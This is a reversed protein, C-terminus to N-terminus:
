PLANAGPAPDVPELMGSAVIFEDHPTGLRTLIPELEPYHFVKAADRRWSALTLKGNVEKVPAAFALATKSSFFIVSALDHDMKDDGLGITLKDMTVYAVVQYDFGTLSETPESADPDVRFWRQEIPAVENPKPAKAAMVWRRGGDELIDKAMRLVKDGFTEEEYIAAVVHPPLADVSGGPIQLSAFVSHNLRLHKVWADVVTQWDDHDLAEGYQEEHSSRTGQALGVLADLPLTGELVLCDWALRTALPAARLEFRSEAHGKELVGLAHALDMIRQVQTSGRVGFDRILDRLWQNSVLRDEDLADQNEALARALEELQIVAKYAANKTAYVRNYDISELDPAQVPPVMREEPPTRTNAFEIALSNLTSPSRLEMDGHALHIRGLIQFVFEHLWKWRDAHYHVEQGQATLIRLARLRTVYEQQMRPAKVGLCRGVLFRIKTATGPCAQQLDKKLQDQAQVIRLWPSANLRAFRAAMEPSMCALDREPSIVYADINKIM